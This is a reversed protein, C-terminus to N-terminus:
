EKGSDDSVVSDFRVREKGKTSTDLGHEERLHREYLTRQQKQAQAYRSRQLNIGDRMSKTVREGLPIIYGEPAFTSGLPVREVVFDDFNYKVVM